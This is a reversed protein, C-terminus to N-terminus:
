YYPPPAQATPVAGPPHSYAGNGPNIPVIAAQYAVQPPSGLTLSSITSPPSAPTPHIGPPPHQHTIVHPYGAPPPQTTTMTTTTTAIPVAQTRVVRRNRRKLYYIVAVIVAIIIAIAIVVAVVTVVKSSAVKVFSYRAEFGKYGILSDSRFRIWLYQGSSTITPAYSGCYTGKRISTSSSGDRVELFDNSSCIGSELRFYNFSIKIRKGAPATIKWTCVM